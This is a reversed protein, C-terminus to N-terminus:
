RGCGVTGSPIITSASVFVCQVLWWSCCFTFKHYQRYVPGRSDVTSARFLRPTARAIMARNFLHAKDEPASIVLRVDADEWFVKAALETSGFLIGLQFEVLYYAGRPGSYQQLGKNMNSLDARITCVRTFGPMVNGRSGHAFILLSLIHMGNDDLVVAPAM